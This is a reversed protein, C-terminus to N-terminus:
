EIFFIQTKEVKYLKNYVANFAWDHISINQSLTGTGILTLYNSSAPDLDIM